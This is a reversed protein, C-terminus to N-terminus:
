VIQLRPVLKSKSLELKSKPLLLKIISLELM